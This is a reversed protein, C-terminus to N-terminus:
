TASGPARFLALASLVSHLHTEGNGPPITHGPLQLGYDCDRQSMTLAAACLQSLRTETDLGTLQDWDLWLREAHYDDYQKTSLGQGRALSKWAIQRLPDGPTYERIGAFEDSGAKANVTTEEEPNDESAIQDSLQLNAYIPRPYCLIPTDFDLHSWVQIIGLPFVSRILLRGPNYYGRQTLPASLEILATSDDALSVTQPKGNPWKVVLSEHQRRSDRSFILKIDGTEGVFGATSGVAKIQVGILNFFTAFIAVIFLSLLFFAIALVFNNEYNTGLLWLLAITALLGMGSKTPFVFAHRNGLLYHNKPPIRRAVWYHFWRHAFRPILRSM